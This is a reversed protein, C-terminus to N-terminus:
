CGETVGVAFDTHLRPDEIRNGFVLVDPINLERVFMIYNTSEGNANPMALFLIMLCCFIGNM